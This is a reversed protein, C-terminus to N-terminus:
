GGPGQKINVTARHAEAIVRDAVRSMTVPIEGLFELAMGPENTISDATAGLENSLVGVGALAGQTFLWYAVSQDMDVPLPTNEAFRQWATRVDKIQTTDWTMM